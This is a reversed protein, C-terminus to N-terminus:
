PREKSREALLGDAIAYAMRGIDRETFRGNMEASIAPIASFLAQGAFWDRLTMGPADNVTVALGNVAAGHDYTQTPFAPGGDDKTPPGVPDRPLCNICGVGGCECDDSTSM